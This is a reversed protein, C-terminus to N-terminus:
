TVCKGLFFQRSAFSPQFNKSKHTMKTVPLEAPIRLVQARSSNEFSAALSSNEFSAARNSNEFSSAGSSNEFSAFENLPPHM